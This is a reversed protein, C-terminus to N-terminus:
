YSWPLEVEVREEFVGIVEELPRKVLVLLHSVEVMRCPPFSSLISSHFSNPSIGSDPSLTPIEWFPSASARLVM